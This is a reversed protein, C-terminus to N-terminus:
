KVSERENERMRFPPSYPSQIGSDSARRYFCGTVYTFWWCYNKKEKKKKTHFVQATTTATTIQTINDPAQDNSFSTFSHVFFESNFSGFSRARTGLLSERQNEPITGNKTIQYENQSQEYHVISRLTVVVSRATCLLSSM